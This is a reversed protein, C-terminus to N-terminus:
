WRWGHKMFFRLASRMFMAIHALGKSAANGGAHVIRFGPVRDIRSVKAIRASLDFDEFYLFFSEDFGGLTRWTRGRIFMCCGSVIHCDDLPADYPTDRRDYQSLRKGMLTKLWKPAFGRILLATVNPHRKVLYQPTGDPFTTVPTAMGCTPNANLHKIAASLSQRDLDVDPNLILVYDAMTNRLAANNGAGFGANKDAIEVRHAIRATPASLIASLLKELLLRSAQPVEAGNEYLVVECTGLDGQQQAHEIATRLSRLTTELWDPSSRHSVISIALTPLM